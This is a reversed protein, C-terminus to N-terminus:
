RNILRVRAIAELPRVALLDFNSVLRYRIRDGAFEPCACLLLHPPLRDKCAPVGCMVPVRRDTLKRRGVAERCLQQRWVCGRHGKNWADPLLVHESLQSRAQDRARGGLRDRARRCERRPGARHHGRVRHKRIPAALSCVETQALRHILKVRGSRHTGDHMSRDIGGDARGPPLCLPDRELPCPLGHFGRFSRRNAGSAGAGPAADGSAASFGIPPM